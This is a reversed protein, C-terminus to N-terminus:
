GVVCCGVLSVDFGRCQQGAQTYILLPRAQVALTHQTLAKDRLVRAFASLGRARELGQGVYIAQTDEEGQGHRCVVMGAQPLHLRRDIPQSPHTGDLAVPPTYDPHTGTCYQNLEDGVDALDSGFSRLVLAFSM